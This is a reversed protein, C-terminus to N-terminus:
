MPPLIEATGRTGMEGHTLEVIGAKRGSRVINVVTGGCTLEIDDAHAGFFIADVTKAM